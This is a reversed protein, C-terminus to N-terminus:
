LKKLYDRACILIAKEKFEDKDYFDVVVSTITINSSVNNQDTVKKMLEVNNHLKKNIYNFVKPSVEILEKIYEIDTLANIYDSVYDKLLIWYYSGELYYGTDRDAEYFSPYTFYHNCHFKVAYKFIEKDYLLYKNVEGLKGCLNIGDEEHSGKEDIIKLANLIYEKNKLFVQDLFEESYIHYKNIFVDLLKEKVDDPFIHYAHPVKELIRMCFVFDDFLKYDTIYNLVYPCDYVVDLILEKDSLLSKDAYYIERQISEAWGEDNMSDKIVALRVIDKDRRLNDKVESLLIITNGSESNSYYNRGDHSMYPKLNELMYMVLEKNGKLRESVYKFCCFDKTCALKALELNDKLKDNCYIMFDADFENNFMYLCDDINDIKEKGNLIRNIKDKKM